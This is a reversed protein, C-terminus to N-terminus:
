FVASTVAQVNLFVRDVAGQRVSIDSEAFAIAGGAYYYLTLVIPRREFGNDLVENTVKEPQGLIGRVTEITLDPAIFQSEGSIAAVRISNDDLFKIAEPKLTQAREQFSRQVMTEFEPKFKTQRSSWYRLVNDADRRAEEMSRFKREAVIRNPFVAIRTEGARIFAPLAALVTPLDKGWLKTDSLIRRILADRSQVTPENASSAVAPAPRREVVFISKSHAARAAHSTFADVQSGSCTALVFLSALVRKM